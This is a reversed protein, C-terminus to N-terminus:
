KESQLYGNKREKYVSCRRFHGTAALVLCVGHTCAARLRFNDWPRRHRWYSREFVGSAGTHWGRAAASAALVALRAACARDGLVSGVGTKLLALVVVFRAPPEIKPCRPPMSLHEACITSIYYIENFLLIFLFFLFILYCHLHCHHSLLVHM